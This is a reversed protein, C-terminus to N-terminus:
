SRNKREPPALEVHFNRLEEFVKAEDNADQFEAHLEAELAAPNPAGLLLRFYHQRKLCRHWVQEERSYPLTWV